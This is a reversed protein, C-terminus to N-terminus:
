IRLIYFTIGEWLLDLLDSLIPFLLMCCQGRGVLMTFVPYSKSDVTRKCVLDCVQKSICLYVYGELRGVCDM